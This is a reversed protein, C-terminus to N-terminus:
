KKESLKKAFVGALVTLQEAENLESYSKNFDAIAMKGDIISDDNEVDVKSQKIEKIIVKSTDINAKKFIEMLDPTVNKLKEEYTLDSKPQAILKVINALDGISKKLEEIELNPTVSKNEVIPTEPKISKEFVKSLVDTIMKDIEKKEM